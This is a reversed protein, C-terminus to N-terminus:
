QASRYRKLEMLLWDSSTVPPQGSCHVIYVQGSMKSKTASHQIFDEATEIDDLFYEYKKDIHRAAEIGSHRDGNREYSCDTARVFALLHSIEDTPSALATACTSVVM